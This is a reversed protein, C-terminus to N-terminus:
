PLDIARSIDVLSTEFDQIAYCAKARIYFAPAFDDKLRIGETLTAIAEKNRELDHEAKGKMYYVQALGPEKILLSCCEELTEELREMMYLLNIRLLHGEENDPELAIMQSTIALAEDLEHAQTYASALFQLTEYDQMLLLAEQYCKIAFDLRGLRQARLGDYKLTDFNKPPSQEKKSSHEQEPKSSSFFTKFFNAM